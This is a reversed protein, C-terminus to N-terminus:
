LMPAKSTPAGGIDHAEIAEAIWRLREMLNPGIVMDGIGLIIPKDGVRAFLNEMYDHLQSEDQEVDLLLSPIGGWITPGDPGGGCTGSKM